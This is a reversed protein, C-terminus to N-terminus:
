FGHGFDHALRYENASWPTQWDRDLAFPTLLAQEILDGEIAGAVAEGIAPGKKFGAGSFGAAIWLGDPGAPGIIPHGDPTMDYLGAHGHLVKAQEFIPFRISASRRALEPFSEDHGSNFHDPDVIDHLEGGGLGVMYRGPGWPRGFMAAVNDVYTRAPVPVTAPLQFIAVQVRQAEIPLEVGISATLIASRPGAAMIVREAAISGHSPNVSTVRSDTADISTVEVGEAVRAGARVAAKAMSRTAAIADVCGSRSEFTAIGIDDFQGAPELEALQAADVLEISVGLSRLQEVSREMRPINDEYGSLTPITVILGTEAFGCDGGIRESWDRFIELSRAALTAEPLNTYHQRLLAGTRGSAGAAILDRELVVTTGLQRVALQRAISVGMIGGGIIVTDAHRPLFITM